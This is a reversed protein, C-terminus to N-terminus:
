PPNAYHIFTDIPMLIIRENSQECFAITSGFTEVYTPYALSTASLGGYNSTRTNADPQGWIKTPLVGNTTPVSNWFLIRNADFDTVFLHGNADVSLSSPFAMGSISTTYTGGYSGNSTMDSQGVVINAAQNTSTPFTNWILVRANGGDAVILKTGVLKMGIPGNLSSASVAGGGNVSAGTMTTQGLVLDAAAGNSTPISNWIKIRNGSRETVAIKGDSTLVISGPKNL